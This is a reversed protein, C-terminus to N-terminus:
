DSTPTAASGRRSQAVRVQNVQNREGQCPECRPSCCGSLQLELPCGRAVVAAPDKPKNPKRRRALDAPPPTPDPLPTPDPVRLAVAAAGDAAVAVVDSVACTGPELM